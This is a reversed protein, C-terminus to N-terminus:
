SGPPASTAKRQVTDTGSMDSGELVVLCEVCLFGNSSYYGKQSLAQSEKPHDQLGRRLAAAHSRCSKLYDTTGGAGGGQAPRTLSKLTALLLM